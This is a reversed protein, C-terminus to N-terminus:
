MWIDKKLATPFYMSSDPPGYMSASDPTRAEPEKFPKM